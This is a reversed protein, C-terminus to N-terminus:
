AKKVKSNIWFLGQKLFGESRQAKWGKAMWTSRGIPRGFQQGALAKMLEYELM